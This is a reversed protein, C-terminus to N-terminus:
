VIVVFNKGIFFASWFIEMKYGYIQLFTIMIGYTKWVDSKVHNKRSKEM